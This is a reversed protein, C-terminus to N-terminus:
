LQAGFMTFTFPIRVRRPAGSRFRWRRFAAMAANDLIASGTTESITASLIAGTSPDVDVVVAGSGTVHNKRAEYPYSPRPSVVAFLKANAGSSRLSPALSAVPRVPKVPRTVRMPTPEPTDSFDNPPPLSTTPEIPQPSSAQPEPEPDASILDIEPSGAAPVGPPPEQVPSFALASAYIAITAVFALALSGNSSRQYLLPKM